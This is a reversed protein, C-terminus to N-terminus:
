NNKLQVEWIKELPTSYPNVDTTLGTIKNSNFAYLTKRQYVPLEVALELVKRMANEYIGKRTNQNTTARGDDILQSLEGIIRTEEPYLDPTEKIERYGWAYVSTATSNMHYVQYMDPDITSGWAAAWVQLSGTSLKTLAQSDAKVDVQWGLENLLEASLKFVAYTPHDTISAGAITFKIKLQSNGAQVGAARMYNQIEKVAEPYLETVSKKGANAGPEDDIWQAYPTDNSVVTGLEKDIFPYAWSEMSMPWDIRKCTGAEYFACALATNMSAMIARRININPVKGANIGIYGYGLQWASASEFGNAKMAKLRESNAKTFQPEVYDVEGRELKDLANSSSVVQLRLKPAKVTFNPDGGMFNTNAKFYVVSDEWFQSGTPTDSNDENTVKFAGAGMPLEVHQQSQITRSQFDSSAFDVGFKDNSIDIVRGTPHQEDASYYHSPAVTFGFNFIAKPDVGDITIQLVDYENANVPKGNADHEHAVRYPQGDITVTEVKQTNSSDNMHGLSVIGAINPINLSGDDKKTGRLIVDLAEAAYQTMLTGATGWFSLVENLKYVVNDNYILNIAAEKTSYTTAAEANIFRVIKLKDKKGPNNPDDAYEPQIKGEYLLFKFVDNALLSAHEQYPATTLDFSEKAANFDSELEKKFTELTYNYDKLLRARFFADATGDNEMKEIESATAVSRKYDSSVNWQSIAEEMEWPEMSYSNTSNEELGNLEFVDQLEMRRALANFQANTANQSEASENGDGAYNSQTRYQTLGKIKVSYMTSSGTYVPDLYEYMNFLVDEMTLPQGDSFELDNKLVFTYISKEDVNPTGVTKVDFAKVVTPQDDGVVPNGNSDTSLMGIQTMGIVDMDAGSTAYFPNFLGSLEETMIIISDKERKKCQTIGLVTGGAIVVGLAISGVRILTKKSM